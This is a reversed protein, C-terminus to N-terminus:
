LRLTGLRLKNIISIHIYEGGLYWSDLIIMTYVIKQIYLSLYTEKTM